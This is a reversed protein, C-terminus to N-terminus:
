KLLYQIESGDDGKFVVKVLLGPSTYWLDRELDGRVRYHSAQIMQGRVPVSEAGMDTVTVKMRSGDLTNLLVDQKILDSNWLSAPIIQAPAPGALGDAEVNLMDGQKTVKMSHKKGDDDTKSWMDVLQGGIWTERADHDFHYAPIFLVKVKVRTRIDVRTRDGDQTFKMVHRGIEQGKRMVTFDLIGDNPIASAHAPSVLGILAIATLIRLIRLFRM